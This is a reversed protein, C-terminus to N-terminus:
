KKLLRKITFYVKEGKIYPKTADGMLLERNEATCKEAISKQANICLEIRKVVEKRQEITDRKTLDFDVINEKDKM